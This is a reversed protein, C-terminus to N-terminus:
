TPLTGDLINMCCRHVKIYLEAWQRILQVVQEQTYFRLSMQEGDVDLM